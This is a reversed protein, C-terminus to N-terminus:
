STEGNWPCGPFLTYHLKDLESAYKDLYADWAKVYADWAKVYADWAKVYVNWAKVYANWAREYALQAKKCDDWARECVDWAKVYANWEPSDKGPLVDDPILKFWKPRIPAEDAPKYKKIYEVREKFDHCFGFHPIRHHCAHALGSNPM